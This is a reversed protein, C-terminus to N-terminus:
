PDFFLLIKNMFRSFSINESENSSKCLPSSKTLIAEKSKLLQTIIRSFYMDGIFVFAFLLKKVTFCAVICIFGKPM